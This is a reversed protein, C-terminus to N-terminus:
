PVETRTRDLCVRSVGFVTKTPAPKAFSSRELFESFNLSLILNPLCAPLYNPRTPNLIHECGSAMMVIPMGGDSSDLNRPWRMESSGWFSTLYHSRGSRQSCSSQPGAGGFQGGNVAKDDRDCPLQSIKATPPPIEPTEPLPMFKSCCLCPGLPCHLNNNQQFYPSHRLVFRKVTELCPYGM